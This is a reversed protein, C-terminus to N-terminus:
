RTAVAVMEAADGSLLMQLATVPSSLLSLPVFLGTERPLPRLKLLSTLWICLSAALEGPEFVGHIDRVRLGALRLARDLSSRDFFGLHRPTSWGAWHRGFVGRWCSHWNPVQMILTGGPSLLDAMRALDQRPRRLHELVEYLLVLDYRESRDLNEVGGRLVRIGSGAPLRIREGCPDCGTLRSVQGWRGELYRLFQGDGCGIELVRAPSGKVYRCLHQFRMKHKARYLWAVLGRARSGDHAHYARTYYTPLDQERPRRSLYVFGCELCRAAQFQGELRYEVDRLAPAVVTRRPSDCLPCPCEEPIWYADEAGGPRHRVSGVVNETGTQSM